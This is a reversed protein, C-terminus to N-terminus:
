PASEVAIEWETRGFIPECANDFTNLAADLEERNDANNEEDWMEWATLLEAWTEALATFPEDNALDTMARRVGAKGGKWAARRLVAIADTTGTM